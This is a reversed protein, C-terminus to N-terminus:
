NIIIMQLLYALDAKKARFCSDEKFIGFLTGSITVSGFSVGKLLGGGGATLALKGNCLSICLSLAV